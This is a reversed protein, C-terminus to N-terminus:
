SRPSSSWTGPRRTRSAPCRVVINQDGQKTVEAESVGSGNVRDRIIAVAQDIQSETIQGAEGDQPVPTLIIQTGGELDLALKPTWQADSFVTGAGITGFIVALLGVLTLLARGPRSAYGSRAM